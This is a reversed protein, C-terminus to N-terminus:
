EDRPRVETVGGARKVTGLGSLRVRSDAPFAATQSRSFGARFAPPRPWDPLQLIPGLPQAPRCPAIACAAARRRQRHASM